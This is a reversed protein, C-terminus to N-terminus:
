KTKNLREIIKNVTELDLKFQGSCGVNLSKVKNLKLVNKVEELESPYYRNQDISIYDNYSGFKVEYEGIKIPEDKFLTSWGGNETWICNNNSDDLCSIDDNWDPIFSKINGLTRKFKQGPSMYIVGPVLGRKTAEKKFRELVEEDSLKKIMEHHGGNNEIGNGITPDIWKIDHTDGPVLRTIKGFSSSGYFSIWEGVKFRDEVKEQIAELAKNWDKPLNFELSGTLKYGGSNIYTVSDNSIRLYVSNIEKYVSSDTKVRGLEVAKKEFAELLVKDGTVYVTNKYNNM